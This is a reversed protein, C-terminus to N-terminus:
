AGSVRVPGHWTRTGDVAVDQLWYRLARHRPARRDLFSYSSGAVRGLAPLLRKNVRVRRAGQQRYLNFGLEDAETGTRWRVVVGRRSRAARLSSVTVALPGAAIDLSWGSTISGADLHTDDVVYLSWTGNASIGNFVSLATGYPGAPAPTPFPILVGCGEFAPNTTGLTPKYTGSPIPQMPDDPLSAAASDDFVLNVGTVAPAGGVDAMLITKQGGPGVLLVDVEDTFMAHNLGMLTVNVDTATGSLGSVTIQSPYPSAKGPLQAPQGLLCNDLGDNITITAPNSFTTAGALAPVALCVSTVAVMAALWWVSRRM